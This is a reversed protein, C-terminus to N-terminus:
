QDYEEKKGELHNGLSKLRKYNYGCKKIYELLEYETATEVFEVPPRYYRLFTDIDAGALGTIKRIKARTFRSDIYKEEEEALLRKRFAAMSKNKRFNFMNILQDLDLGVGFNGSAPSSSSIGLGPKRFDFAKAYEERNMISDRTYNPPMIKVEKLTTVNVHLSIDFQSTRQIGSVAYMPTPKGLYSFFISDTEAVVLSYQGLSDTVTGRGNNTLVSVGPLPVTRNMEFVTGSVRVQAASRGALLLCILLVQISAAYFRM